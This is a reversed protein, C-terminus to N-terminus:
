YGTGALTAQYRVLAALAQERGEPKFNLNNDQMFQRLQAKKQPFLRVVDTGKSVPYYRHDKYIFYDDHALIESQVGEARSSEQRTKYHAALLRVPGEVLLDYFGTRVPTNTSSDGVLRIFSHGSLTFRTVQENVLRLQRSSGPAALVLQGRVLDYRLLVNTYTYGAYVITAPQANDYAFFPNGQTNSRLYDLYEPGNYLGLASGRGSSYHQSLRSSAATLLTSDPRTPQGWARQSVGLALLASLGSLLISKL